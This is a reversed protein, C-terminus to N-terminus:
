GAGSGGIDTWGLPFGMLWEQWTPNPPGGLQYSLSHGGQSYPKKRHGVDDATPTTYICQGPIPWSSCGTGSIGPVLPPLRCVIGNRMLGSRPWTESFEELQGWLSVQWTKWSFSAPDYWAFSGPLSPGCRLSHGKWAKCGDPRASTTVPFAAASCTSAASLLTRVDVWRPLRPWNKELVKRAFPDIECQWEIEMGAQQLGLDIGGIGTFLSAVKM